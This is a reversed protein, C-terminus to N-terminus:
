EILKFMSAEINCMKLPSVEEQPSAELTVRLASVGSTEGVELKMDEENFDFDGSVPSADPLLSLMGTITGTDWKKLTATGEYTDQETSISVDVKADNNAPDFKTIKLVVKGEDFPSDEYILSKITGSWQTGELASWDEEIVEQDEIDKSVWGYEADFYGPINFSYTKNAYTGKFSATCYAIWTGTDEDFEISDTKVEEGTIKYGGISIYDKEFKNDIYEQSPGIKPNVSEITGEYDELVWGEEYKTYELVYSSSCSINESEQEVTCFVTAYGEEDNTKSEEVTVQTIPITAQVNGFTCDVIDSTESLDEKIKSDSLSNSGCASVSIAITLICMIVLIRKKM